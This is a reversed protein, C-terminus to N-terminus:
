APLVLSYYVYDGRYCEGAKFGEDKYKIGAADLDAKISAAMGKYADATFHYGNRMFKIRRTKKNKRIDNYSVWFDYHKKVIERVQKTVAKSM